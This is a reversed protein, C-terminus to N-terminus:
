YQTESTNITLKLCIEQRQRINSNKVKVIMQEKAQIYCNLNELKNDCFQNVIIFSYHAIFLTTWSTFSGRVSVFTQLQQDIDTPM